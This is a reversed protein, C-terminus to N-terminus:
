GAGRTKTAALVGEKVMYSRNWPYSGIAEFPIFNSFTAIKGHDVLPIKPEQDERWFKRGLGVREVGM